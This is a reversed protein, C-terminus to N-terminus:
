WSGAIRVSQAWTVRSFAALQLLDIHELPDSIEPCYWATLIALLRDTSIVYEWGDPDSSIVELPEVSAGDRMHEFLGSYRNLYLYETECEPIRAPHSPIATVEIITSM